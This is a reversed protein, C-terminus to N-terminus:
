AELTLPAASVIEGRVRISSAWRIKSTTSFLVAITASSILWSIQRARHSSTFGICVSCFKKHKTKLLAKYPNLIQWCRWERGTCWAARKRLGQLTGWLKRRSGSVPATDSDESAPSRCPTPSPQRLRPSGTILLERRVRSMGWKAQKAAGCQKAPGEEATACLEAAQLTVADHWSCSAQATAACAGRKHTSNRPQKKCNKLCDANRKAAAKTPSEEAAAGCARTM